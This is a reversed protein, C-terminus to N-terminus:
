GKRQQRQQKGRQLLLSLVEAQRQTEQTSDGRAPVITMGDLDADTISDPIAITQPTDESM